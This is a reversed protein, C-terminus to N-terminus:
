IYITITTIPPASLPYFRVLGSTIQSIHSHLVHSFRHACVQPFGAIQPFTAPIKRTTHVPQPQQPFDYVHNQGNRYVPQACKKYLSSM